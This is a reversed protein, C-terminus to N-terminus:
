SISLVAPPARPAAPAWSLVGTALSSQPGPRLSLGANQVSRPRAAVLRVFAAAVATLFVPAILAIILNVIVGVVVAPETLLDASLGGSGLRELAELTM